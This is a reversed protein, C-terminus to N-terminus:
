VYGMVLLETLKTWGDVAVFLLLKLPLAVTNPSMMMMGLSLLVNAVIIDIILFPLFILFGIRFSEKIESLLFAAFVYGLASPTYESDPQYEEVVDVRRNRLDEFFLATEEDTNVEVFEVFPQGLTKIAEINETMDGFEISGAHYDEVVRQITPEMVFISLAIALTNLVMNSPTQPLGLANRLIGLVVVVKVYSTTMVAFVSLLSLFFIIVGIGIPTLSSDAM